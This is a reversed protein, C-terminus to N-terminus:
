EATDRRGRRRSSDPIIGLAQERGHLPV